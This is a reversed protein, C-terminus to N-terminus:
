LIWHKHPNYRTYRTFCGWPIGAGKAMAVAGRKLV